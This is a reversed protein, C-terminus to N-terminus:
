RVGEVRVM